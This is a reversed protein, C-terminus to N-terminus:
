SQSKRVFAPLSPLWHAPQVLTVQGSQVQRLLSVAQDAGQGEAAAPFFWKISVGVDVVVIM